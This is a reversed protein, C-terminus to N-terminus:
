LRRGIIAAADAGPALTVKFQRPKRRFFADDLFAPSDTRPFRRIRRQATARFFAAPFHAARCSFQKPTSFYKVIIIQIGMIVHYHPVQTASARRNKSM